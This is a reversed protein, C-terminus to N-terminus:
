TPRWQTRTLKREWGYSQGHHGAQKTEPEPLSEGSSQRLTALEKEAQNLKNLLAMNCSELQAVLKLLCEMEQGADTEPSHTQLLQNM